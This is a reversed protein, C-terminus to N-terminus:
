RIGKKGLHRLISEAIADELKKTDLEFPKGDGIKKGFPETSRASEDNMDYYDPYEELDTNPLSMVKKQYAPHQGFDHLEDENVRRNRKAERMKMQRYSRSEYVKYGNRKYSEFAMDDDVDENDDENGYLDDDEYKESDVTPEDAGVANLVADLKASLDSIQNQLDHLEPDTDVTDDETEDSLEDETDDDAFADEENDLASEGDLDDETSLTDDGLGEEDGLEDEGDETADEEELDSDANMDEIEEKLPDSVEDEFPQGDGVENVGDEPNNQSEGNDIALSEGEETVVDKKEDFPQGDGIETDNSKDMYTDAMTGKADTGTEHWALPEAEEEIKADKYGKNAKAAKGPKDHDKDINRFSDKPNKAADFDYGDEKCDSGKCANNIPSLHQEKKENIRTANLMIQRERYIEKRMKDTAEVTLEEQKDPNWSEIVVKKNPTNAENISMMKLDFQKQAEAFSKYEYDKRNRFGGIYEFNESLKGKKNPSTKIYYKTGERVIGYLKGDAAVKEYEVGTYSVKKGENIGFKMLSRMRSLQSNVDNNNNM